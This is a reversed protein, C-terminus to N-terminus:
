GALRLLGPGPARELLADREHERADRPEVRHALLDHGLEGPLHAPRHLVAALEPAEVLARVVHGRDRPLRQRREDDLGAGGELPPDQALRMADDEHDRRPVVGVHGRDIRDSIAPLATTSL